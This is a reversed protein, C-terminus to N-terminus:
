KPSIKLTDDGTRNHGCLGHWGDIARREDLCGPCIQLFATEVTKDKLESIRGEAQDSRGRFRELLNKM